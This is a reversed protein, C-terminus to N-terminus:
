AIRMGSLRELRELNRHTRARETFCKTVFNEVRVANSRDAVMSVSRYVVNFM